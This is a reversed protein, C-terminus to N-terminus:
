EYTYVLFHFKIIIMSIQRLKFLSFYLEIFRLVYILLASSYKKLTLVYNYLRFCTNRYKHLSKYEVLINM